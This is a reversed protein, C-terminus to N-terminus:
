SEVPVLDRAQPGRETEELEYEVVQGKKLRRGREALSSAHVFIDEGADDKVFGYGRRPDYWRVTGRRRLMLRNIVVCGPCNLAPSADGAAQARERQSTSTDLFGVGCSICTLVRDKYAM